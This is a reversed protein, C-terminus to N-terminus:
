IYKNKKLFFFFFAQATEKLLKEVFAILLRGTQKRRVQNEGDSRSALSVRFGREFRKEKWSEADLRHSVFRCCCDCERERERMNHNHQQTTEEGRGLQHPRIEGFSGANSTSSLQKNQSVVLTGSFTNLKM